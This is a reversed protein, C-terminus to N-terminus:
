QERKQHIETIRKMLSEPNNTPKYAEFCMTSAHGRRYTILAPGGRRVEILHIFM